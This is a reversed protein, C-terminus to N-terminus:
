TTIPVRQYGEKKVKSWKNLINGRIKVVRVHSIGIKRGIERINYGELLLAFVQKERETTNCNGIEEVVIHADVYTELPEKSDPLFDKLTCGTEDLPMDLSIIKAKKRQKRIYNLIYFECGKVIYADNLVAPVEEKFNDWLYVSMEQYLDGADVSFYNRRSHYVALKKLRPSIRKFLTEFNM